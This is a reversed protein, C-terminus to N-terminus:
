CNRVKRSFVPFLRAILPATRAPAPMSIPENESVPIAAVKELSSKKNAPPLIRNISINVATALMINPWRQYSIDASTLPLHMAALKLEFSEVFERFKILAEPNWWDELDRERTNRMLLPSAEIYELGMQKCFTLDEESETIKEGVHLGKRIALMEKM